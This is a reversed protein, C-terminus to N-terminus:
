KNKEDIKQTYIRNYRSKYAFNFLEDYVTLPFLSFM